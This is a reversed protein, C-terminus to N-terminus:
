VKQALRASLNIHWSVGALTTYKRLKEEKGTVMDEAVAGALPDSGFALSATDRKHGADHPADM